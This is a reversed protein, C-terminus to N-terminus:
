YTHIKMLSKNSSHQVTDTLVVHFNYLNHQVLPLKNYKSINPVSIIKIRHFEVAGCVAAKLIIIHETDLFFTCKESFSCLTPLKCFLDTDQLFINVFHFTIKTTSKTKLDFKRM